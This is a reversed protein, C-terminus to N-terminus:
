PRPAPDDDRPPPMHVEGEPEGKSKMVLWYIGGVIAVILIVIMLFAAPM